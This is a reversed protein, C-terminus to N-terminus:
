RTSTRKRIWDDIAERVMANMSGEKGELQERLSEQKLYAIQEEYFDFTRRVFARKLSSTAGQAATESARPSPVSVRTDKAEGGPLPPSPAEEPEQMSTPPRQAQFLPSGDLENRREQVIDNVNFKKSM